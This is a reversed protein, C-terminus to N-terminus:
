TKVCFIVGANNPRTEKEGAGGIVHGHAEAQSVGHSHAAAESVTHTHEGSGGTTISGASAWLGLQHVGGHASHTYPSGQVSHSHNGGGISHAHAGVPTLTHAHAGGAAAMHTHEKFSQAQFSGAVRAEPDAFADSREGSGFDNIGRLFVGRLDVRGSKGDAPLWGSPCAEPFQGILGKLSAKLAALEAQQIVLLKKIEDATDAYTVSTLTLLLAALVNRM